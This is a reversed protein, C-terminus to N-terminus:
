KIGTFRGERLPHKTKDLWDKESKVMNKFWEQLSMRQTEKPIASKPLNHDLTDAYEKLTNSIFKFEKGSDRYLKKYKVKEIEKLQKTQNLLGGSSVNPLNEITILHQILVTYHNEILGKNQLYVQDMSFDNGKFKEILEHNSEYRDTLFKSGKTKNFLPKSIYNLVKNLDYEYINGEGIYSQFRSNHTHSIKYNHNVKKSIYRKLDWRDLADKWVFQNNEVVVQSLIIHFHPSICSLGTEKDYEISSEPTIHYSLGMKNLYEKISSNVLSIERKSYTTSRGSEILKPEMKITVFEIPLEINYEPPKRKHTYFCAYKVMQNLCKSISKACTEPIRNKLSKDNILNHFVRYLSIGNFLRYSPKKDLSSTILSHLEDLKAHINDVLKKDVHKFNQKM